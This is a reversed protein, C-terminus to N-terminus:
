STRMRQDQHRHAFQGLLGRTCQLREGLVAAHPNLGAHTADVDVTLGVCKTLTCANHNGRGTAEDVEEAVAVHRKFVETHHDDVFGVTHCVHPEQRLNFLDELTGAITGTRLHQQEGGCEVACNAFQNTPVLLVRDTVRGHTNTQVAFFIVDIGNAVVKAHQNTM